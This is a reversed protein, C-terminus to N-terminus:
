RPVINFDSSFNDASFTTRLYDITFINNRSIEKRIPELVLWRQIFGRADPAKKMSTAPTFHKSLSRTTDSNLPIQALLTGQQTPPQAFLTQVTLQSVFLVVCALAPLSSKHNRNM